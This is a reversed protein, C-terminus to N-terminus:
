FWALSRVRDWQQKNIMINIRETLKEFGLPEIHPPQFLDIKHMDNMLQTSQHGVEHKLSSQNQIQLNRLLTNNNDVMHENFKYFISSSMNMPIEFLKCELNDIVKDNNKNTRNANM